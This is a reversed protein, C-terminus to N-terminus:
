SGNKRAKLMADAMEYCNRAVADQPEIGNKEAKEVIVCLFQNNSLIGKLAIKAFNDRMESFAVKAINEQAEKSLLM